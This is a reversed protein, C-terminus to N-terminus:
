SFYKCTGDKLSVFVQSSPVLNLSKGTSNNAVNLAAVNFTEVVQSTIPSLPSADVLEVRVEHSSYAICLRLGDNNARSVEPFLYNFCAMVHMNFWYGFRLEILFSQDLFMAGFGSPTVSILVILFHKFSASFCHWFSLGYSSFSTTLVFSISLRRVFDVLLDCGCADNCVRGSTTALFSFM